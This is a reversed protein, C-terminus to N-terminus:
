DDEGCYACVGMRPSNVVPLMMDEGCEHEKCCEDCYLALEKYSCEACLQTAPEGCEVCAFVPPLNRAMLVIREKRKVGLSISMVKLALETTSGFDYEYMFELEESLLDKLKVKMDRSGEPMFYPDPHSDYTKGGIIFMSLHGCCELWKNRLFQDVDKLSANASAELYMCYEKRYLGKVQICYYLERGPPNQEKRVSCNELHRRIAIKGFIKGCYNCRISQKANKMPNM